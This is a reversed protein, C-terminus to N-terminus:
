HNEAEKKSEDDEKGELSDVYEAIAEFDQNEVVRKALQEVKKDDFPQNMDKHLKSVDDRIEEISKAERIDNEMIERIQKYDIKNADIVRELKGDIREDMKELVNGLDKYDVIQTAVDKVDYTKEKKEEPMMIASVDEANMSKIHDVPDFGYRKMEVIKEEAKEIEAKSFPNHNKKIRENVKMVFPDYEPVESKGTEKAKMRADVHADLKHNLYQNQLYAKAIEKTTNNNTVNQKFDMNQKMEQRIIYEDMSPSSSSSKVDEGSEGTQDDYQAAKSDYDNFDETKREEEPRKFRDFIKMPDEGVQEINNMQKIVKMREGKTFPESDNEYNFKTQKVFDNYQPKQEEGTLAFEESAATEAEEKEYFYKQRLYETAVDDKTKLDRKNDQYNSAREKVNEFWQQYSPTTSETETSQERETPIDIEDDKNRGIGSAFKKVAGVRESTNHFADKTNRVDHDFQKGPSINKNLERQINKVGRRGFTFIRFITKRFVYIVVFIVAKIFSLAIIDIMENPSFGDYIIENLLLFFTLCSIAIVRISLVLVLKEIWKIIIAAGFRPLLAMLFVFVSSFIIFLLLPESGVAVGALALYILLEPLATVGILITTLVWSYSKIPVEKRLNKTAKEREKSDPELILFEDHYQDSEDRFNLVRWPKDVQAEWIENNLVAVGDEVSLPRDKIFAETILENAVISSVEKGKTIFEAPYALFVLAFMLVLSLKIMESIMSTTKGNGAQVLFYLLTLGLVLQLWSDFIVTKLPLLFAVLQDAFMAYFNLTFANIMVISVLHVLYKHIGFIINAINEFPDGISFAGPKADLVYYESKVSLLEIDTNLQDEKYKIGAGAFSTSSLLMMAILILVIIKRQMKM